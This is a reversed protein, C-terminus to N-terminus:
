SPRLTQCAHFSSRRFQRRQSPSAARALASILRSAAWICVRDCIAKPLLCLPRKPPSTMTPKTKTTKVQLHRNSVPRAKSSLATQWCQCITSRLPPLFQISWPRASPRPLSWGRCLFNEGILVKLICSERGHAVPRDVIRGTHDAVNPGPEGNEAVPSRRRRLNRPAGAAATLSLHRDSPPEDSGDRHVLPDPLGDIPPQAMARCNLVGTPPPPFEALVELLSERRM